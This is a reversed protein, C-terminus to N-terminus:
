LKSKAQTVIELLKPLDEKNLFVYSNGDFRELKMFITWSDKKSFCGAQFGSRSRYSVETYSTSVTPLVKEQVLKLSNILADVEDLDLLALKTDSSYSSVYSYEFRVASTKQDSILDTFKAIQIKCRKLEGVDIFEKQMLTGAKDSFKEANSIEKDLEKAKTEAQGFSVNTCLVFAAITFLAYYNKKM